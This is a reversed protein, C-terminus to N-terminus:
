LSQNNSIYVSINNFDHHLYDISKNNIQLISPVLMLVITKKKLTYKNSNQPSVDQIHGRNRIYLWV